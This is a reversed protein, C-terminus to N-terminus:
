HWYPARWGAAKAEAETCFWHEGDDTDIITRHYWPSWPAHYIKGHRSINGKIPCGDPATDEAAAWRESRYDWAPQAPGSWIGLGKAKATAGEALYSDSFKEFPWALGKDVMSKGIDVGGAYCTAIVRGYADTTHAECDLKGAEVLGALAETAATGCDWNGCRQGHEPADIGEIRIVIGDVELTDGDIVKPDAAATTAFLFLLVSLRFM